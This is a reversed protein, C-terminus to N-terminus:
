FLISVGKILIDNKVSDLLEFRKNDSIGLLVNRKLFIFQSDNKDILELVYYNSNDKILAEEPISWSLKDHYWIETQVFSNVFLNIKDYSIPKAYARITHTENDVTKGISTLVAYYLKDKENIRYFILSDGIHANIADKEFLPILIQLKAPDVMEFLTVNPQVYNGVILNKLQVIGSIPAKISIEKEINGEEIASANLGMLQLVSLMSKYQILANKYEMELQQFDKTSVINDKVLEKQREYDKKLSQYKYFATAYEQQIKIIENGTLTIIPKGKEVYNGDSVWIKAITANLPFSVSVMGEPLAVIKGNAKIKEHFCQKVVKGLQMEAQEFQKKTVVITEISDTNAVNNEENHTGCSALFFVAIM